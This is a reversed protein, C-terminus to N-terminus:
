FIKMNVTIYAILFRIQCSAAFKSEIIELESSDPITISNWIVSAYEIKPRALTSYLVLLSDLTSFSSTLYRIFGLM